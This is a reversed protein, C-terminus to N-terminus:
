FVCDQVSPFDVFSNKHRAEIDRNGAFKIEIQNEITQGLL